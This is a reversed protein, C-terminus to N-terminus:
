SSPCPRSLTTPRTTSSGVDAETSTGPTAAKDQAEDDDPQSLLLATRPLLTPTTPVHSPITDGDITMQAVEINSAEPDTPQGERPPLLSATTPISAITLLPSDPPPPDQSAENGEAIESLNTHTPNSRTVKLMRSVVVATTQSVKYDAPIKARKGSPSPNFPPPDDFRGSGTPSRPSTPRTYENVEVTTDDQTALHRHRLPLCILPTQQNLEADTNSTIATGIQAGAHDLTALTEPNAKPTGAFTTPSTASPPPM